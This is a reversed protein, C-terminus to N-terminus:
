SMNGGGYSGVAPQVFALPLGVTGSDSVITTVAGLTPYGSIGGSGVGDLEYYLKGDTPTFPASLHSSFTPTGSDAGLPVVEFRERGTVGSPSGTLIAWAPPSAAFLLSTCIVVIRVPASLRAATCRLAPSM